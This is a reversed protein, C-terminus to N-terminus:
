VQKEKRAMASLFYSEIGIYVVYIGLFVFINAKHPLSRDNIFIYTLVLIIVAFFKLITGSMKARILANPNKDKLSKSIMLFSLSTILWLAINGIQLAPNDILDSNNSYIYIGITILIFAIISLIYYQKSM